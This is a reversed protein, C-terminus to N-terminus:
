YAVHNTAASVSFFQSRQHLTRPHECKWYGRDDHIDDARDLASKSPGPEDLRLRLPRNTLVTHSHYHKLMGM